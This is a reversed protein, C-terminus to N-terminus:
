LTALWGEVREKGRLTAVRRDPLAPEGYLAGALSGAIAATTDTDNGLAIARKVCDEYSGTSLLCHISSWFSDVVYGSGQPANFRSCSAASM